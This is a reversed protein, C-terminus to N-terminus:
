SDKMSSKSLLSLIARVSTAQTVEAPSLSIGTKESLAIMISMHSFSDWGPSTCMATDATVEEDNLVSSVVEIVDDVAYRSGAISSHTSESFYDQSTMGYQWGDYYVGSKCYFQRLTGEHKMGATLVSSITRHNEAMTIGHLRNLQMAEFVYEKLCEQIQLIYGSGWLQPDVGYGWEISKRAYNLTTLSATGILRNDVKRRVFWYMATKGAGDGAMRQLLKDIYAKTKEIADFPDFEFFEYLREDRSYSHMEELGSMSLREFFIESTIRRSEEGSPLVGPVLHEFRRYFEKEDIM